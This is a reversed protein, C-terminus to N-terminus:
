ALNGVKVNNDSVIAGESGDGIRSATIFNGTGQGKWRVAATMLKAERSDLITCGSVLTDHCDEVYLGNPTGELVQVGTLTLRRCGILEILGQKTMPVAGSVTNEGTQSDQVVLGSITINESRVIRVGTSLEKEKYDPNHGIANTGIAINRSDEILLNKQHGSYIVNGDITVDRVSQLHVNTEQSGILNGSITWMGGKHNAQPGSGIFRINAGGPSYTAQITNSAITGERVTGERVDIFIEATPVDDANPVKHARNNNYEIDNGTIQFNRIEGGEVRIGGLRCYSIHSGTIITQHLNVHDLFVGIGTNHYIHSHSILVNRARKTIHVGHRVRRILVGTLTPQMVGEIRVGDAQAHRGEIELNAITPMRENVWEEPRFGNPDASASHTAQLFFAPGPGDMLIKATGGSGHISTRSFRALDVVLPKTIRYVGCTFEVVGDGDTLAHMLAETDDTVGDGVAGFSRVDSM